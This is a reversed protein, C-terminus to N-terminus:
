GLRRGGMLFHLDEGVTAVGCVISDRDDQSIMRAGVWENEELGWLLAFTTWFGQENLDHCVHFFWITDERPDYGVLVHGASWDKVIEKVDGAWGHQAEILDGDAPSRALGGTTFAYLDGNKFIINEPNAFGDKWFPRVLVPVREDPTSQAIELHNPTLLYIRGNASLMGIITEPPSSSFQIGAPFAEINTPKSPAIMPGPSPDITDVGSRTFSPGRCSGLVPTFNLLEVFEAQPPPDNDFSALENGSIEADLYEIDFTGGAPSVDEDTIEVVFRWPGNLYQLDAGLTQSFMTGYYHWSNQGNATDMAPFTVRIKDGTAITVDARQSPNNFGVTQTRAPYIIGSYNGGQMGKTGGGIAALTPAPPTAMGLTFVDYTGDPDLIAIQPQNTATLSGGSLSAGNLFLEGNGVVVLSGKDLKIANGWLLMGRVQDLAFLRYMRWGTEGSLTATSDRWAEYQTDSIVRKVFIPITQDNVEDIIIIRQGLKCESLFLTGTGNVLPSGETVAITGTLAVLPADENLNLEGHMSEWYRHGGSRGRRIMNATRWVGSEDASGSRPMTPIYQGGRFVRQQTEGV